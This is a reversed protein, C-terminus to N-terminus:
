FSRDLERRSCDTLYGGGVFRFLHLRIMAVTQGSGVFIRRPDFGSWQLRELGREDIQPGALGPRLHGGGPDPLAVLVSRGNGPGLCRALAAPKRLWAWFRLFSRREAATSRRTRLLFTTDGLLASACGMLALPGSRRM